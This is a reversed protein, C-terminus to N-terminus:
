PWPHRVLKQVNDEDVVVLYISKKGFGVVRENLPREIWAVLKGGRDVIDFRSKGSAGDPIRTILLNGEPTALIPFLPSHPSFQEPWGSTKEVAIPKQMEWHMWSWEMFAKKDAATWARKPFPLPSGRVLKGGPRWWEVLYPQARVVAVWGDLFMLSRDEATAAYSGTPGSLRVECTAM